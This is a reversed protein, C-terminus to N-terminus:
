ATSRGGAEKRRTLAGARDVVEEKKVSM